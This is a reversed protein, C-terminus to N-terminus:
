SSMSSHVTFKGNRYKVDYTFPHDESWEKNQKAKEEWKRFDKVFGDHLIHEADLRANVADQFEAFTGLYYRKGKFGISVRYRGNSKRSVGRFGSTNDRRNKRKELWEVCTGDVHHLRTSIKQQNEEQLCGCSQYNGYVLNRYAIDSENGCDCRCHWLVSQRPDRRDTPYLATLHGFRRGSIDIGRSICGCSKVRGAKLANSQVIKRNGCDCQCLWCTRGKQNAAREVAVLRGFRKGALDEAVTGHRADTKPICGCNWIIGNVLRKTNVQIEGGCDCRCNWVAYRDETRDAKDTVTLMGFRKGTLDSKATKM